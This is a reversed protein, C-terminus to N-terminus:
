RVRVACRQKTIAAASGNTRTAMPWRTTSCRGCIRPRELAPLLNSRSEKLAQEAAWWSDAVVAIWGDRAAVHRVGAAKAITERAFGTLRGGPPAIRVAAFLMGPLRVDGAFRLSGDSKAPGDLRQLPEGMLRGKATQRPQPKHPPTRGAAEEALEGFTFTRGGNIVFGDGTECESPSLNWRDAAAGVLMMRAVAAAERLPQEFARVSTSNATIRIGDPWGEEKALPNAYAKLLPAPEVGVTEWAAGLEDAVIQPLATWIGQGTEVQAVAM